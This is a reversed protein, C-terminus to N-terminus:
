AGGADIQISQVFNTPRVRPRFRSFIFYDSTWVADYSLLEQFHLEDCSASQNASVASMDYELFVPIKLARARFAQLDAEIWSDPV